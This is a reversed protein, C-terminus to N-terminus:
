FTGQQTAPPSGHAPDTGATLSYTDAGPNHTADHYYQAAFLANGAPLVQGPKLKFVYVLGDPATQVSVDVLTPSCTTWSGASTVKPGTAVKITVELSTVPQALTVIVKEQSWATNDGGDLEGAATLTRSSTAAVPPRGGLHLGPGASGTSGATPPATASATASPDGVPSPTPAPSSGLVPPGGGVTATVAMAVTACLAAAAVGVPIGALRIPVAFIRVRVTRVVALREYVSASLRGTDPTYTEAEADLLASLWATDPEM